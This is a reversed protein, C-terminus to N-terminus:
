EEENIKKLLPYFRFYEIVQLWMYRWVFINIFVIFIIVDPYSVLFYQLTKFELILYIIGTIIIYQLLDIASSKTFIKIDEQFIKDAIIITTFLPFIILENDFLTYDIQAIELFNAVWLILLFLLIYLSILLARKAHILLHVKASLLNVLLISILGIGIFVLASLWFSALTIGLLIPYYIGFVNLGIIQKFINLLLVIFTISLLFALLQYSFWAYSLFELFESLSYIKKSKEYSLEQGIVIDKNENISMRTILGFFQDESILFVKKANIQSLSSAIIKSLFSKSFSSIIYIKKKSFDIEKFKQFKVINSFFWLIDQNGVIITDSESIDNWTEQSEKSWSILIDNHSRYLTHNKELVDNMNNEMGIRDDWLYTVISTYAKIKKSINGICTINKEFVVEIEIDWPMSFIQSIKDKNKFSDVIKNNRKINIITNKQIENDWLNSIQYEYTTWIKVQEEWKVEHIMSCQIQSDGVVSWTNSPTIAAHAQTFITIIVIALLYKM